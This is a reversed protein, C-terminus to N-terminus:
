KKLRSNEEQLDYIIVSLKEIVQNCYISDSRNKKKTHYLLSIIDDSNKKLSKQQYSHKLETLLNGIVVGVVLIVVYAFSRKM